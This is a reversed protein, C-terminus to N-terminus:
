VSFVQYISVHYPVPIHKVIPITVPHPVLYPVTKTLTITKIDDHGYGFNSGYGHGFNGLDYLGRKTVKKDSDSTEALVM